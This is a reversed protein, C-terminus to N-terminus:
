GKSKVFMEDMTEDYSEDKSELKLQSAGVTAGENSGTFTNSATGLIEDIQRAAAEDTILNKEQLSRMFEIMRELDDLKSHGEQRSVKSIEALATQMDMKGAAVKQMIAAEMSRNTLKATEEAVVQEVHINLKANNIEHAFKMAEADPESNVSLIKYSIGLAELVCNGEQQLAYMLDSDLNDCTLEHVKAIPTVIRSIATSISSEVDYTTKNVYYVVSDKVRCEVVVSVDFKYPQNQSMAKLKLELTFPLISVRVVKNYDGKRIERTTTFETVKRPIGSESIL